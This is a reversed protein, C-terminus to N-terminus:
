DHPIRGLRTVFASLKRRCRSLATIWAAVREPDIRSFDILDACVFLNEAESSMRDVIRNPDHRRLGGVSQDAVITLRLRKRIAAFGEISIQFRAAIQRSSYGEAAMQRIAKDRLAREDDTLRRGILEDVPRCPVREALRQATKWQRRELADRVNAHQEPDRRYIALAGLGRFLSASSVGVIAGVQVMTPIEQRLRQVHELLEFGNMNAADDLQQVLTTNDALALTQM